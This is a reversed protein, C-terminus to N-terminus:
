AQKGNAVRLVEAVRELRTARSAKLLVLDGPKFFRKVATAAAEVDVFEFVRLLGAERAARAMVPAMKGVAMLQGVGLSAAKRGVEEHAAVSQAGLEAMDGLVAIRRGACPLEVLAHLAATVSDANANYADDLVRVGHAEWLQMRMKGPKCEALGRQLEARGLGLEAGVALALLANSVQHRGLLNIRYDGSLEARPAGARFAVGRDDLQVHDAQWANSRSFGTRVVKATTRCALSDAWDSDANLVLTGDAPLLEALKGEEAAVGDLNGFYELHERAINTIVGIRPRIMQVLPELEGPHNTGVELVAAQHSRELRLLTVPVGVDNNFSAESALTPWKQRLVSAILDKTTTKGNSGGVAVIPLNFDERHRAALLGLARRTDDVAIFPVGPPVTAARGRNVVVAAVGKRVVDPLFDHADFREGRLAFFLDGAQASRSDTSVARVVTEGAGGSLQGACADAIFTLARPDTM